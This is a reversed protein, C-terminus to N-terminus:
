IKIKVTVCDTNQEMSKLATITKDADAKTVFVQNFIQPQPVEITYIFCLLLVGMKNM